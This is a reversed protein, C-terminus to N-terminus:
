RIGTGEKVERDPKIRGRSDALVRGGYEVFGEKNVKMELKKFDNFDVVEAPEPEIGEATVQKGAEDNPVLLSPAGDDAALLMGQSHVGRIAAPKLNAVVVIKRNLLKEKEYWPKIGAVIRRKGVEGMDIDLVYLKDASPHERVKEIRAIRLDLKSFPDSSPVIDELELKKFIPTPKELKAKGLESLAEEWNQKEVEGNYGLMHWIRNASHPMYPASCVALAKVIKLCIHMVTACRERDDKLLKWPENENMYQNGTQALKIVRKIGEKFHCAKISEGVERTTNEIEELIKKDEETLEGPSPIEGFNKQTFTIVRHIFNGYTGVLENNNKAVFDEWNWDTDHKEPMNISLYYRIVDADFKKLIDPIWIGIGRSKSFQEGSFTLYENAPVDYPLNLGGHAMLMSPWIITHFPINDKALFYYHKADGEWWEKWKDEEGIISAWEKSASLYGIVAEFWVYLRKNEFGELPVEVGWELDRTIARDKLGGKIWNITFKLVNDKWYDKGDLWELLKEEFASLKFFLHETEKMVPANGCIKCKPEILESPEMTKGCKDCQDGRAEGGCYPCIGEVYRDPLFRGCHDCYPSLMSKRYIYGNDYLRLFFEQVVKKHFERSTRSFNEYTIGLEEINKVHQANYRDAIEKPTKGEKEATLTIPTGHEDSGSVMLVDNGAMRNYKGFIDAPLMCGALTGLHLSGNAYPWAAGIFIREKM